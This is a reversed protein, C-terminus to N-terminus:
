FFLFFIFLFLFIFDIAFNALRVAFAWTMSFAPGYLLKRAHDLDFSSVAM